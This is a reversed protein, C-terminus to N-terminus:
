HTKCEKSFPKSKIRLPFLLFWQLPTLWLCSQSWGFVNVLNLHGPVKRLGNHQYSRQVQKIIATSSSHGKIYVSYSRWSRPTLGVQIENKKHSTISHKDCFFRQSFPSPISGTENLPQPTFQTVERLMLPDYCNELSFLFILAAKFQSDQRDVSARKMDKKFVWDAWSRYTHHRAQLTM